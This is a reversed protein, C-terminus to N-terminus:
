ESFYTSGANPNMIPQVYQYAQAIVIATSSTAVDITIFNQNGSEDETMHLASAKAIRTPNFRNEAFTKPSDSNQNALM